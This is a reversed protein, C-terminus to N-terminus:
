KKRCNECVEGGDATVRFDLKPDDVDTKGCVDCKHFFSGAPTKASEFRSRRETVIAKQKLGKVFGPGFAIFFNLLSFVIPLRASPTDIFNLLLLAGTIMGLWKVKVPLIFFLYFEFDPFLRAFALFLTTYLTLGEPQFGFILAGIMMFFIGGLLYLNLRFAGWHQELGNGLTVMVLITLLLWIPSSNSPIFVWTVLRWIQGQLVQASDLSIFERFSPQLLLMLWVVVQFGALINVLGPIAYRGYKNELKDILPM